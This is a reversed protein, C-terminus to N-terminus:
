VIGQLEGAPGRKVPRGGISVVKGDAGREINIDKPEPRKQQALIANLKEDIKQNIKADIPNFDMMTQKRSLAVLSDNLTSNIQNTIRNATSNAVERFSEKLADVISLYEMPQTGSSNETAPTGALAQAAKAEKYIIEAEAKDSETKAKAFNLLAESQNWIAEGRDREAEAQMEANRRINDVETQQTKLAFEQERLKQNAMKVQQDFDPQPPPPQMAQQLFNNAIEVLEEKEQINYNQIIGKLIIWYGPSGPPMTQLLQGLQAVEFERAQAGLAGHVRFRYDAVPYRETDFQMYRWAIKHILPTLFQYEMNRLTRKARKLVAGLMMSMGGATENRPNVGLPAATDMAGTAMTVMREFEASQRYSQPDPGPFKFPALAENVPGSVIINRGPRISFDGNRPAMMGNVLAVPYTALALADIRARLEADLAKQPNYGKEAVGRGWFRNPVTDWQFAVFSRDQMIFPNRVVKLLTGRNAIWVIAEVMEGADDYELNSNEEAFDALPDPVSTKSAETFLDKPVLGHYEIIEVHEIQSYTDERIDFKPHASEETSYLGVDTKNWIGREQKRIVEHQPITYIHAAGLAADISKAAIDIVFENPDVPILSVHLDTVLEVDSTIGESGTIPVRRPKQEVSIKGIGTGYLAANLLIESISKNVNRTEFDELLQATIQDLRTDVDAALTELMQPNMRPAAEQLLQEFVKERVDDELDFWRKRHFITEEMESVAAEIAQQLAPAIIKSREHQRIKDEEGGHQGRWLRYYEKWRKQHQQNRADEWNNVKYAVWGTLGTDVVQENDYIAM